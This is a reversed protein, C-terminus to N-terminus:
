LNWILLNNKEVVLGANKIIDVYSQYVELSAMGMVAAYLYGSPMGQTGSEKIADALLKIFEIQSKIKDDM